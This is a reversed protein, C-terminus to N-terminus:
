VNHEDYPKADLPWETESDAQNEGDGNKKMCAVVFLFQSHLDTQIIQHKLCQKPVVYCM